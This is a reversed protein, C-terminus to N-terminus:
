MKQGNKILEDTKKKNFKLFEQYIKSALIKESIQKAFIKEWETIQRKM